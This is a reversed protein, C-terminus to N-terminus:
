ISESESPMEQMKFAGLFTRTRSVSYTCLTLKESTIFVVGLAWLSRPGERRFRPLDAGASHGPQIVLEPVM